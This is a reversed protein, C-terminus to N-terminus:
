LQYRKKFTNLSLIFNEQLRPYRTHIDDNVEEILTHVLTLDAKKILIDIDKFDIEFNRYLKSLIIDEISLIFCHVCVGSFVSIRRKIYSRPITTAEFDVLDYPNFFNLYNRVNPSYDLNLLDYDITVRSILDTLLCATGGILCIDLEYNDMQMLLDLKKFTLFVDEKNIGYATIDEGMLTIEYTREFPM